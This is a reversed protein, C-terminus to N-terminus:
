LNGHPEEQGPRPHRHRHHLEQDLQGPTLEVMSSEELCLARDVYHRARAVDHTVMVVTLGRDRNLQRLLEYLALTSDGDIGTTPEDLLLVAPDSVLVRAIMTRQLQGGSLTGILQRAHDAMGVQRLAELARERHSRRPLALFGTQAYLNLGVVELATAPFGAAGQLGGQPVYGIKSWRRFHRVDEGLLRIAGSSPALERLLLKLLTTKGAGNGGIISVFDGREVVFSVRDLVPVAGYGFSVADVEIIREM